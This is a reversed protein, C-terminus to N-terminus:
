KCLFFANLALMIIFSIQVINLHSFGDLVPEFTAQSLSGSDCGAIRAIFASSSASRGKEEICSRLGQQRFPLVPASIDAHLTCPRTEPDLGTYLVDFPGNRGTKM